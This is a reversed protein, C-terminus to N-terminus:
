GRRHRESSWSSRCRGPIRSVRGGSEKEKVALEESNVVRSIERIGVTLNGPDVRTHGMKWAAVASVRGSPGLTAHLIPRSM